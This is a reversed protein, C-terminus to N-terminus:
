MKDLVYNHVCAIFCFTFLKYNDEVVFVFNLMSVIKIHSILARQNVEWVSYLFNLTTRATRQLQAVYEPTQVKGKNKCNLETENDNPLGRKFIQSLSLSKISSCLEPTPNVLKGYEKRRRRM